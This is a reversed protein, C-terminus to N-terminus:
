AKIGAKGGVPPRCLSHQTAVALNSLSRAECYLKKMFVIHLIILESVEYSANSHRGNQLCQSACTEHSTWCIIALDSLWFEAPPQKGFRWDSHRQEEKNQQAHSPAFIVNEPTSDPAPCSSYYHTPRRREQKRSRAPFSAAYWQGTFWM